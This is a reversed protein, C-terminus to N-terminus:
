RLASLWQSWDKHSGTLAFSTTVGRESLAIELNGSTDVAGDSRFTAVPKRQELGFRFANMAGGKSSSQGVLVGQACAVISKNRKRLNMASAGTGFPFESFFVVGSRELWMDFTKKNEPPFPRDLGAPMVCITRGDVDVTARHAVTDAGLAFGSVVVFGQGTAREAFEAQLRSYPERIERSGVCAVAKTEALVSIDGRAYLIPVPNNSRLANAPYHSHAYTLIHGQHKYAVAIQRAARTQALLRDDPAVNSLAQRLSDGAKGAIPLSHPDRLASEPDVGADRLAKFKQPGFGKIGDLAFLLSLEALSIGVSGEMAPTVEDQETARVRPTPPEAEKLHSENLAEMTSHGALVQSVREVAHSVARRRAPSLKNFKTGEPWADIIGPLARRFADLTEESSGDENSM